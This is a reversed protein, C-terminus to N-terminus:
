PLYANTSSWVFQLGTCSGVNFVAINNSITFTWNTPIFSALMWPANTVQRAAIPSNTTLVTSGNATVTGVFVVGTSSVTIQAQTAQGGYINVTANINSACGAGINMNDDSSYLYAANANTFPSLGGGSGNIGLDMYHNTESGNNATIVLDGSTFAGSNTNKLNLQMYGPVNGIITVANQNTTGTVTLTGNVVTRDEDGLKGLYLTSGGDHEPNITIDGTNRTQINLPSNAAEINLASDATIGVAGGGIFQLEGFGNGSVITIGANEMYIGNSTSLTGLVNLNTRFTSSGGVNLVNEITVNNSIGVGTSSITVQAQTAQGSFIRVSGGTGVAGINMNDDSSYLYAANANTFPSLGGGSGNIGLDMYHNTESGNNATIVLDGSAFAGSNTNKLNLQMYGPVNGIITVANQNTTIINVMSFTGTGQISINTQNLYGTNTNINVPEWPGASLGIAFLGLILSLIKKKM